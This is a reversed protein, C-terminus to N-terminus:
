TGPLVKIIRARTPNRAPYRDQSIEARALNRAPYGKLPISSPGPSLRSFMPMALVVSLRTHARPWSRVARPM